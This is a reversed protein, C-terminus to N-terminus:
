LSCRPQSKIKVKQPFNTSYIFPYKPGLNGPIEPLYPNSFDTPPVYNLPESHGYWAPTFALVWPSAPVACQLRLFLNQPGKGMTLGFNLIKIPFPNRRRILSAAVKGEPDATPLFTPNRRQCNSFTIPTSGLLGHLLHPCKHCLFWPTKMEVRSDTTTGLDKVMTEPLVMDARHLNSRLLQLLIDPTRDDFLSFLRLDWGRRVLPNLSLGAM